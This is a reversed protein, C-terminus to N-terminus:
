VMEERSAIILKGRGLWFYPDRGWQVNGNRDDQNQVSDILLDKTLVDQSTPVTRASAVTALVVSMTLNYDSSSLLLWLYNVFSNLFYFHFSFLIDQSLIQPFLWPLSGLSSVHARLSYHLSLSVGAVPLSLLSYELCLVCCAYHSWFSFCFSPWFLPIYYILVTTSPSAPLYNPGPWTPGQCTM